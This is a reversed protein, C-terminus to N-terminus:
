KVAGIHASSEFQGATTQKTMVSANRFESLSRCGSYSLGSRIGKELDRVVDIVSGKYPIVSAVGELSATRGRWDFQAEKSAMGRYVKCKRGNENIIEGPSEDTGALMSGLMVMDAGAALCKVIDGSTKIGGDAVLLVDRDSKSCDIVTQLTPKGHGTQIRTTCISGGGIGCRISDAGWDALDNFAELTAINGAMVHLNSFSSKIKTLAEKVMVHHGHAVDLCIMSVGNEVLSHTREMFDDTVGVAAGVFGDKSADFVIKSQEEISNYRHVIGMAGAKSLASAMEAETVKDMPASFIPLSLKEKTGAIRFTSELSVESRSRIDSYLPELLVDDFCIGEKM